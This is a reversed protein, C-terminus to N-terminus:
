DIDGGAGFGMWSLYSFVLGICAGVGVVLGVLSYGVRRKNIYNWEHHKLGILRVPLQRLLLLPLM